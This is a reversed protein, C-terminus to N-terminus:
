FPSDLDEVTEWYPREDKVVQSTNGKLLGSTNREHQKRVDPLITKQVNDQKTRGAAKALEVIKSANVHYTNAMGKCKGSEIVLWGGSILNRRAKEITSISCGSYEIILDTSPWSKYGEGKGNIYTIICSMVSCDFVTLNKASFRTKHFIDLLEMPSIKKTM